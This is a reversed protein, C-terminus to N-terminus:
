IGFVTMEKQLNHLRLKAYPAYSKVLQLMFDELEQFTVDEQFRKQEGSDVQVYTLQVTVKDKDEREMYIYAYVKAQAWHVPYSERTIENLNRATSKIEDITVSEDRLLLGDCRGEIMYEMDEHLYSTQLFVEAADAEEYTKQITQHAKTGEILSSTSKFGSEISGSRFVYEVLSRVSLKVSFTM